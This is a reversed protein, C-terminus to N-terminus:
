PGNGLDFLSLNVANVTWKQGGDFTLKVSFTPASVPLPIIGGPMTDNSLQYAPTMAAVNRQDYGIQISPGQGSGIYDFGELMKTVGPSGFDLWPWWVTGEFNMPVGDVEDTDVTPDVKSVFDGHRIYLDDGLQAFCDIAFPYEYRSWKGKGGSMTYVFVQSSGPAGVMAAFEEYTIGLGGNYFIAREENTLVDSFFATQGIKTESLTSYGPVVGIRFPYGSNDQTTVGTETPTELGLDRAFGRVDGNRYFSAMHWDDQSMPISPIGGFNDRHIGGWTNPFEADNGLMAIYGNDSDESCKAVINCAAGNGVGDYDHGSVWSMIEYTPQDELDVCDEAARSFFAENASLLKVGGGSGPVGTLLEFFGEDPVIDLDNDRHYDIRPGSTETLPWWSILKAFASAAPTGASPFALWYQGAGPYYTSLIKGGSAIAQAMAAQVLVDVPEGVDGAALNEAGAAIGVSRVGRQSLFLLENAVPQAAKNWSSGIGEMQDLLAMAAPDPDAQWNQFSSPNFAVLNGRYQGMVAMDNANASQLGTPLYGADQETTWDLPNATASFRIIDGDVKFVKSAIILAVKTHPCNVDEVRRSICEWSITGDVVFGGVATPWDPETAGSKLIPSATWTVRSALVAEWIVTNDTVQVGVTPPWAPESSDSTGPGPQVAKFILGAPATATTYNWAFNDAYSADSGDRVVKVGISVKAAGAPAVATVTSQKWSGGSSSTIVTGYSTSLPADSIDLWRLFVCGVNHGSSAAGQAYMCSATISKGPAVLVSDHETETAGGTGTFHLAFSGQYKKDGDVATAAGLTWDTDDGTEFGANTIATSIAPLASLPQVLDGPLYLHGPQWKPTTM